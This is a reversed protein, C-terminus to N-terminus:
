EFTGDDNEDDGLKLISFQNGTSDDLNRAPARFLVGMWQMTTADSKGNVFQRQKENM